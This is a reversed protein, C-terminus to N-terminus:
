GSIAAFNPEPRNLEPRGSLLEGRSFPLRVAIRERRPLLVFLLAIMM